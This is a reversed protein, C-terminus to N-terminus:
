CFDSYGGLKIDSRRAAAIVAASTLAALEDAYRYGPAHGEFDDRTAPHTYIETWGEPLRDLLGAFRPATMAGSWALGFVADPSRLGARRARRALLSAWPATLWDSGPPTQPDADVLTSRTEIPARLGRLGHRRGVAIIAGAVTPHLHFHKHANVHDLPLNTARFAEFQAEIEAALQRRASPHAFIDFGLGAMDSRFRGSADVLRPLREPPLVPCGEVLVVHLGVRLHPLRRAREVADRAAGGSVM